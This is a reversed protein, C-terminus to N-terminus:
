SVPKDCPLPSPVVGNSFPQLPKNVRTRPLTIRPLEDLRSERFDVYSIRCLVLSIGCPELRGQGECGIPSAVQPDGM